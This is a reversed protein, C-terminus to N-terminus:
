RRLDPNDDAILVRQRDVQSGDGVPAVSPEDAPSPLWSLAEQAFLDAVGPAAEAPQESVHEAPLHERGLPIRVEFRSGRGLTSDVSVQGGHLEVIEKVLALGIGTGEHSRSRANRVQHFRDFIRAREEPAIGPGTDAVSLLLSGDDGRLRVSIRGRLTVKFANSLLNLVVREWLDPDVYTSDPLPQCDIELAIGSRQSADRFTGALEATLAPLNVPRFQAQLRGAELRSFDLLSNVLKLLRLGNRHVLEVQAPALPQDGDLADQLPALMLTLPTRFEHSVNSFFATKARDLEALQRAREREAEYSRAGALGAALRQAILQVFARYGSDLPRYRNVGVVLFGLADGGSSPLLAVVLAQRPPAPWAGTPLREFRQDLDDVVVQDSDGGALERAPWLQRPDDAAIRWPAVPEGPRVGSTAVLRAEGEEHLTYIATFPLSRADRGLHEAAARLFAGEDEGTGTVSGLDRLTSMRQEGIVRETEESVVCLMGVIRGDDDALPSYSFTHYTEEVFGSRELFLLLSEDWTAEGTRLVRDIRPSVEPWIEAWVESAPRGLAWPYKEGLTARRYADNCFFTLEPGWAMWMSFRSSLLVRVVTRLSGPWEEPPGLPTHQWDVALLDRGVEGAARLAAVLESDRTSGPQTM